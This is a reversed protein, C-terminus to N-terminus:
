VRGTSDKHCNIIFQKSPKYANSAISLDSFVNEGIYTVSAPIMVSYVDHPIWNNEFYSDGNAFAYEGITEVGDPIVIDHLSTCYRFANKGIHKLNKSFTVSSLLHCSSFADEDISEVGDPIIISRLSNCDEFAGHEISKLNEPLSISELNMCCSFADYGIFEVSDPIVISQIGCNSFACEGIYKLNKPLTISELSVCGEFAGENIVKVSDPIVISTIKEFHDDDREKFACHGISTVPAGNIEAPIEIEKADYGMYEIIEATGDELLTYIYDGYSFYESESASAVVSNNVVTNPLATGGFVFTLALLGSIIKKSKM